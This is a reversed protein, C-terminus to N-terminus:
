SPAGLLLRWHVGRDFNPGSTRRLRILMWCSLLCCDKKALTGAVIGYGEFNPCEDIAFPEMRRLPARRNDRAPIEWLDGQRQCGGGGGKVFPETAAYPTGQYACRANCPEILWGCLGV